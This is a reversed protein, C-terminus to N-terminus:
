VLLLLLLTCNWNMISSMFSYYQVDSVLKEAIKEIINSNYMRRRHDEFAGKVWLCPKENLRLYFYCRDVVATVDSLIVDDNKNRVLIHICQLVFSM